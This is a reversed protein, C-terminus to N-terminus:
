APVPVRKIEPLKGGSEAIEEAIRFDREYDITLGETGTTFFPMIVNPFRDLLAPLRGPSTDYIRLEHIM